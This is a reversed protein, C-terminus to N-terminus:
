LTRSPSLTPSSSNGIFFSQFLIIGNFTDTNTHCTICFQIGGLRLRHLLPIIPLSSNCQMPPHPSIFVELLKHKAQGVTDFFYPESNRMPQSYLHHKVIHTGDVKNGKCPQNAHRFICNLSKFGNPKRTHPANPLRSTSPIKMMLIQSVSDITSLTLSKDNLQNLIFNDFNIYPKFWHHDFGSAHKPTDLSTRKKRFIQMRPLLKTPTAANNQAIQKCHHLRQM